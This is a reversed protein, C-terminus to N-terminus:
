LAKKIKKYLETLGKEVNRGLDIRIVRRNHKKLSEYDGNAQSQKLVGFSYPKGPIELDKTDDQVIQIYLGNDPGGKHLQGTSHLFRPGYGATTALKKKSRLLERIEQLINENSKNKQIYAMLSIYDGKKSMDLFYKLFDEAKWKDTKKKGSSKKDVYVSLDKDQVQPKQEPLKKNEEFYKLVNGTNDKSEKVNPEDFPNIGIVVGMVSTAFEWLYFQGGIDYLEDLEIEILPRDNKILAKKLKRESGNEKGLTLCTFLRDKGYSSIKGTAEGEVPIVGKDEKGTSEAILQEVWFGFSSIRPPLVFTLKDTGKKSLEGIATGLYVGPNKEAIITMCDDMMNEANNLFKVIDVGIIAAPVLGFYSLASYRGGIDPPNIFIKRFNNEKATSELLTAPDTIAIFNKGANQGKVKSVKDFFYRLFSDVEITSGSKSSVIFLTKEIDISNEIDNVTMPDTSDLVHLNLYGERVGFIERCVEPCMSSGGMGLVVAHTYGESRLEDVFLNIEDCNSKMSVPLTLWGLRNKILENFEPGEKWVAADKEWIRNVINEKNFKKLTQLVKKNFKGLKFNKKSIKM